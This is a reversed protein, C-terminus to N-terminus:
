IKELWNWLISQITFYICLLKWYGIWTLSYIALLLFIFSLTYSFLRNSPTNPFIPSLYLENEYKRMPWYRNGFNFLWIFPDRSFQYRKNIGIQFGEIRIGIMPLPFIYWRYNKQDVYIGIWMDFWAFIPVIKFERLIQIHIYWIRLNFIIKDYM